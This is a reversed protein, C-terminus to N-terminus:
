RPGQQPTRPSWWFPDGGGVALGVGSGSGPDCGAQETGLDVAHGPRGRDLVHRAGVQGAPRGAPPGRGSKRGAARTEGGRAPRGDTFHRLSRRRARLGPDARLRAPGPGGPGGDLPPRVCLRAGGQDPVPRGPRCAAAGRRRVGAACLLKAKRAKAPEVRGPRRGAAQLVWLEVHSRAADVGCLRRAVPGPATKRSPPRGPGGAAVRGSPAPEVRGAPHVWGSPPRRM